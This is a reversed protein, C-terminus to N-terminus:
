CRKRVSEKGVIQAASGSALGAAIEAAIRALSWLRLSAVAGEVSVYFADAQTYHGNYIQDDSNANANTRISRTAQAVGTDYLVLSGADRDAVLALHTWEGFPVVGGASQVSEVGAADRVAGWVAGNSNIAM